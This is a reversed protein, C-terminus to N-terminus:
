DQSDMEEEDGEEVESGTDSDDLAMGRSADDEGDSESDGPESSSLGDDEDGGASAAAGGGGGSGTAAAATAGRRMRTSAVRSGVRANRSARRTVAAWGDADLATRGWRDRVAASEVALDLLTLTGKAGGVALVFPSVGRPRASDRGGGDHGTLAASPLLAASFVAGAGAKREWLAAAPSSPPPPEKGGDSRGAASTSLAAADWVRVFKDTGGTVLLGPLASSQALATAAGTHAVVSGLLTAAARAKGKKKRGGGGGLRRVDHLAMVGDETTVAVTTGVPPVGDGGVLWAAAEVDASLRLGGAGAGTPPPPARVDVVTLCGDFSATLLASEDVPSWAVAQVKDTHHSLTTAVVGTEADWVKVTSDASGSALYERQSPHWDLAMVAGTHSGPLLPMDNPSSAVAAAAAAAAAAAGTGPRPRRAKKPRGGAGSQIPAVGGLTVVAELSDMANVDFVDIAPGFSGVAVYSGGAKNGAVCGDTWAAVLPFSPLILDHHVYSHPTYPEEPTGGYGGDNDDDDSDVLAAGDDSYSVAPEVVHFALLSADEEAVAAIVLSDTPRLLVDALEEEDYVADPDGGDAGVGAALLPDDANSPFLALAEVGSSLVDSVDVADDSETSGTSGDDDDSGAATPTDDLVPNGDGDPPPPPPPVGVATAVDAPLVTRSRGPPVWCLSSLM